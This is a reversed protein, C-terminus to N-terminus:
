CPNSTSYTSYFKNMFLVYWEAGGSYDEVKVPNEVDSSINEKVESENSVEGRRNNKGDQSDYLRGQQGQGRFGRNGGAYGRRDSGPGWNVNRPKEDYHAESGYVKGKFENQEWTNDGNGDHGQKETQYSSVVVQSESGWENSQNFGRGRGGRGRGRGRGRGGRGRGQEQWGDDITNEADAGDNRQFDNEGGNSGHFGSGGGHSQQYGDM